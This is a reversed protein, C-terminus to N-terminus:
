LHTYSVTACGIFAGVMPILATFAILVSILMAYPMRFISMAIFFMMGLICALHTYSVPKGTIGTDATVVSPVAIMLAMCCILIKSWIKKLKEDESKNIM